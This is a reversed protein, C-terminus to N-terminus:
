KNNFAALALLGLGVGFLAVLAKGDEEKRKKLVDKNAEIYFSNKVVELVTDLSQVKPNFDILTVQGELANFMSNDGYSQVIIIKQRDKFHNWACDVEDIVMQTPIGTSFLVFLDSQNIKYKTADSLMNGTYYRDPLQMQFGSVGGITHLRLALTEEVQNGPNYTIFVQQNKM